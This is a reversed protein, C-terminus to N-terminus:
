KSAASPYGDELTAFQSFTVEEMDLFAHAFLAIATYLPQSALTAMNDFLEPLWQIAHELLFTREGELLDHAAQTDGCAWAQKERETLLRLFDLEVGAFDSILHRDRDVEVDWARYYSAVAATEPGNLGGLRAKGKADHVRGRYVSEYPTLYQGTPVLFLNNYDWRLEDFDSKSAATVLDACVEAGAIEFAVTRFDPDELAKLVDPTPPGNFLAALWAYCAARVEVAARMSETVAGDDPVATTSNMSPSKEM